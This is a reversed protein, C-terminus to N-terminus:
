EGSRRSPDNQYLLGLKYELQPVYQLLADETIRSESQRHDVAKIAALREKLGLRPSVWATIQDLNRKYTRRVNEDLRRAM